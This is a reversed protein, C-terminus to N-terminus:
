MVKQNCHTNKPKKDYCHQITNYCKCNSRPRCYGSLESVKTKHTTSGFSWHNWHNIRGSIWCFRKIKANQTKMRQTWFYRKIITEILMINRVVCNESDSVASYSFEYACPTNICNKRRWFIKRSSSKIYVSRFVQYETSNFLHFHSCYVFIQM